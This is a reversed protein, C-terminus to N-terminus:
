FGPTKIQTLTHIQFNPMDGSKTQRLSVLLAVGSPWSHPKHVTCKGDTTLVRRSDAGVGWCPFGQRFVPVAVVLDRRTERYVVHLTLVLADEPACRGIVIRLGVGYCGTDIHM